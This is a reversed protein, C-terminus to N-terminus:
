KTELGAEHGAEKESQDTQDLRGGGVPNEAPAKAGTVGSGGAGKASGGPIEDRGNM